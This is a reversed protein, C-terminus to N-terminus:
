ENRPGVDVGTEKEIQEEKKELKEQVEEKDEDFYSAITTAIAVAIGFTVWGEMELGGLYRQFGIDIANEFAFVVAFTGFIERPFIYDLWYIIKSVIYESKARLETLV